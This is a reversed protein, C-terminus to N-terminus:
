KWLSVVVAGIAGLATLISARKYWVLDSTEGELVVVRSKIGDRGYLTTRVDRMDECDFGCPKSSLEAVTERAAEKAVTRLAWAQEDTFGPISDSM